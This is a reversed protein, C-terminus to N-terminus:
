SVDASTYSLLPFLERLIGPLRLGDRHIRGTRLHCIIAFPNFLTGTRSCSGFTRAVFKSSTHRPYLLSSATSSACRQRPQLFAFHIVPHGTLILMGANTACTFSPFKSSAYLIIPSDLASGATQPRTHGCSLWHSPLHTRPILPSATEMPLSSRKTASQAFSFPILGTGAASFFPWLIATM